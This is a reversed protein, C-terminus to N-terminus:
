GVCIRGKNYFEFLYCNQKDNKLMVIGGRRSLMQSHCVYASSSIWVLTKHIKKIEEKNNVTVEIAKGQSKYKKLSV